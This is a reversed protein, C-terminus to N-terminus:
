IIDFGSVPYFNTTIEFINVAPDTNKKFLWGKITFSTDAVVRFPAEAPLDTPYSMAINESWLVETRIEQPVQVFASPVKWSIVIYPNNYPVFNSLLQDMDTQFKTLLSMNVTINIPVPMPLYDSTAIGNNAYFSGYQKNFARENDRAINGISVAIVPLTLHMSRNVYDQIIRQKPSYVYSVKIKKDDRQRQKNYRNIVVSNFAAVFQTM